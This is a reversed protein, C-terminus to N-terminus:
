PFCSTGNLRFIYNKAEAIGNLCLALGAALLLLMANQFRSAGADRQQKKDRDACGQNWVVQALFNLVIVEWQEPKVSSEAEVEM